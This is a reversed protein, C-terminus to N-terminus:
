VNQDGEVNGGVGGRAVVLRIETELLIINKSVVHSHFLEINIKIQSIESLM